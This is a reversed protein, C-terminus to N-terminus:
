LTEFAKPYRSRFTLAEGRVPHRFDLQVGHLALRGILNSRTGYTQDGLISNVHEALRVRIQHKRGTELRVEVLSTKSNRKLVTVHTIALKGIKRNPTSYVRY